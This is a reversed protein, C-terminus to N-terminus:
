CTKIPCEGFLFLIISKRITSIDKYTINITLHNKQILMEYKFQYTSEIDFHLKNHHLSMYNLTNRLGKGSKMKNENSLADM